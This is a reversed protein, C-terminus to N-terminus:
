RAASPGPGTAITSPALAPILKLRLPQQRRGSRVGQQLDILVSPAVLRVGYAAEMRPLEQELLAITEPFPHGIALASGSRRAAALLREFQARVAVAGRENDLFVQRRTAPLRWAEAMPYAVSRESTFSDVFYLGGQQRVAAMLWNMYDSRQSLLSGQHINVGDVVPLAALGGRLREVLEDQSSRTTVALPHAKGAQPELPFHLLVEKGADRCARALASGHPTAPLIACAVPGPLARVRQGAERLDGLADIIIAVAPVDARVTMTAALVLGAFLTSLRL